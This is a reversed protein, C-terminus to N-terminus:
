PTQKPLLADTRAITAELEADILADLEANELASLTDRRALLQQMRDYQEQTFYTDPVFRQILIASSEIDEGEQALLADLAEGPTRGVSRRKGSVARFRASATEQEEIHVATPIM